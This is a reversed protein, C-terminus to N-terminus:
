GRLIFPPPSHRAFPRSRDRAADNGDQDVARFPTRRRVGRGATNAAHTVSVGAARGRVDFRHPLRGPSISVSCQTTVGDRPESGSRGLSAMVSAEDSVPAKESTADSFRADGDAAVM